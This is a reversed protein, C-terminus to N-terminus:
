LHPQVLILDTLIDCGPPDSGGAGGEGEEWYSADENAPILSCATPM